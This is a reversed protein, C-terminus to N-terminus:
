SRKHLSSAAVEGQAMILFAHDKEGRLNESKVSMDTYVIEKYGLISSGQCFKPIQITGM